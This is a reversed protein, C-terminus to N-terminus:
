QLVYLTGDNGPVYLAGDNGIAIGGSFLQPASVGSAAVRWLQKGSTDFAYVFGDTSNLYVRANGDAVPGAVKGVTRTLAYGVPRSWREAGTSDDVAHLNGDSMVVYLTDGLHLPATAGAPGLARSWRAKGAPDFAYGIGAADVGYMSGDADLVPSSSVGRYMGTAGASWLTKGSKVDLAFWGNFGAAFLRGDCSEALGGDVEGPGLMPDSKWLLTGTPDLAYLSGDDSPYVLTGERTVIPDGDASSGTQYTWLQAGGPGVAFLSANGSAVYSTGDARVAPTSIGTLRNAAFSWRPKGLADFSYLQGSKGDLEGAGVFVTNDQSVVPGSALGKQQDYDTGGVLAKWKLRPLDAVVSRTFGSNRNDHRYRPWANIPLAFEGGALSEDPCRAEDCVGAACLTGPPCTVVAHFLRDSGCATVGPGECRREGTICGCSAGMCGQDLTLDPAPAPAAADSPGPSTPVSGSCGALAVVFAFVWRARTAVGLRRAGLRAGGAAARLRLTAIGPEGGRTRAPGVFHPTRRTERELVPALLSAVYRNLPGGPLGKARNAIETREERPPPPEVSSEVM